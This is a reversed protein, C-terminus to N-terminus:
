LQQGGIPEEGAHHLPLHQLAADLLWRIQLPDADPLFWGPRQWRDVVQAAVSAIETRGVRATADHLPLAAVWGGLQGAADAASMGLVQAVREASGFPGDLRCDALGELWAPLLAALIGPKTMGTADVLETALPWLAHSMPARGLALFSTHTATSTLAATLRWDADALGAAALTEGLDLLTSALARAQADQLLLRRDCVAPVITRALPEILGAALAQESLSSTLQPDLIAQQPRLAPGVVMTSRRGRHLAVPSVESATGFTTPLCVLPARSTPPAPLILMGGPSQDLAALLTPGHAARVVLKGADLVSGGGVAIVQPLRGAAVAASQLEAVAQALFDRGLAGPHVPLEVAEPLAARLAVVAPSHRVVPAPDVLLMTPESATAGLGDVWSALAGDGALVVTPCSWSGVPRRM